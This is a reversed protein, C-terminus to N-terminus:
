KNNAEDYAEELGELCKAIGSMGYLVSSDMVISMFYGGFDDAKQNYNAVNKSQYKSGFRKKLRKAVSSVESNDSNQAVSVQEAIVDAIDQTNLGKSSVLEKVQDKIMKGNLM